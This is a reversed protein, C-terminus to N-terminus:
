NAKRVSYSAFLLLVAGVAAMLSGRVLQNRVSFQGSGGSRLPLTMTANPGTGQESAAKIGGSLQLLGSILLIIGVGANRAASNPFILNRM